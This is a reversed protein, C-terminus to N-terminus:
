LIKTQKKWEDYCSKGDKRLISGLVMIMKEGDNVDCLVYADTMWGDLENLSNDHVRQGDAEHNYYIRYKNGKFKIEFGYWRMGEIPSVQAEEDGLVIANMMACRRDKGNVNLSVWKHGDFEEATRTFGRDVTTTVVARNRETKFIMRDGDETMDARYHLLFSYESENYCTVDDIIVYLEDDLRVFSRQNRYCQNSYPGTADAIFYCLKGDEVFQEIHGPLRSGRSVNWGPMGEGNILMISHARSQTYYGGYNRNGYACSGSDCFIQDGGHFLQFSGADAHAHNWSHGCRVALMTADDEDSTRITCIDKSVMSKPLTPRKGDYEYLESHLMDWLSPKGYARNFFRKFNEDDLGMTLLCKAMPSHGGIWPNSDGFDAFLYKLDSGSIPYALAMFADPVKKLVPIDSEGEDEFCNKYTHLCHALEGIGYNFYLAGEYFNGNEDFNAPKALIAEGQYECFERLAKIANQLLEISGDVEDYVACLGLMPNGICVAWWNHGMSDLAHVRTGPNMWDNFLPMVGKEMIADRIIGREDETFADYMTDYVCAMSHLLMTTNLESHWPFRKDLIGKNCWMDYSAYHLAAEKMKATYKTEGLLYLSTFAGTMTGFQGCAAAMNMYPEYQMLEEGLLEDAREKMKLLEAKYEDSAAIKEKLGAVMEKTYELRPHVGRMKERIIM